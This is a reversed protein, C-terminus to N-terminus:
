HWLSEFLAIFNKALNANVMKIGVLNNKEFSLISTTDGIIYIAFDRISNARSLYKVQTAKKAIYYNDRSKEIKSSNILVKTAINKESKIKKIRDHWEDHFVFKWEERWIFEDRILYLTSNDVAQRMMSLYIKKLGEQGEFFIIQPLHMNGSSLKEIKDQITDLINFKNEVQKQELQLMTKLSKSDEAIFQKIENKYTTSVLGKSKLAELITYVSSRSMGCKKALFTAGSPSACLLNAYVLAEHDRLGLKQLQSIIQEM